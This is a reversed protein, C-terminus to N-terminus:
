GSSGLESFDCREGVSGSYIRTRFAEDADLEMDSVVLEGAPLKKAIM